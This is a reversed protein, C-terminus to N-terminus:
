VNKLTEILLIHNRIPGIAYKVMYDSVALLALRIQIYTLQVDCEAAVLM